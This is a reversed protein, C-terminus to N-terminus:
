PLPFCLQWWKNVSIQGNHHNSFSLTAAARIVHRIASLLARHSAYLTIYGYDHSQPGLQKGSFEGLSPRKRATSRAALRFGFASMAVPRHQACLFERERSIILLNEVFSQRM